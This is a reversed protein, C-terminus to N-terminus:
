TRPQFRRDTPRSTEIVPGPLHALSFSPPPRTPISPMRTQRVSRSLIGDASWPNRIDDPTTTLPWKNNYPGRFTSDLPDRFLDQRALVPPRGTDDNRDFHAFPYDALDGMVARNSAGILVPKNRSYPVTIIRDKSTLALDRTYEMAVGTAVAFVDAIETPKAKDGGNVIRPIPTNKSLINTRFRYSGPLYAWERQRKVFRQGPQSDDSGTLSGGLASDLDITSSDESAALALVGGVALAALVLAM